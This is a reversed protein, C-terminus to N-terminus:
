NLTKDYNLSKKRDQIDGERFGVFLGMGRGRFEIIQVPLPVFLSFVRLLGLPRGNFCSDLADNVAGPGTSVLLM